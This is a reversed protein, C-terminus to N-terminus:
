WNEYDHMKKASYAWLFPWIWYNIVSLKFIVYITTDVVEDNTLVHCTEKSDFWFFIDWSSGMIQILLDAFLITVLPRFAKKNYFMNKDELIDKVTRVLKLGALITLIVLLLSMIRIFLWINDTFYFYSVKAFLYIQVLTSIILLHLPLLHWYM